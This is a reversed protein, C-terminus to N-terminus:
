QVGMKWCGGGVDRWCGRRIGGRFVRRRVRRKLLSSVIEVSGQLKIEKIKFKLQRLMTCEDELMGGGYVGRKM